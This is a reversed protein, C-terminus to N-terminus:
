WSRAAIQRKRKEAQEDSITEAQPAAPRLAVGGREIKSALSEIVQRLRVLETATPDEIVRGAIYTRLARKLVESREGQALSDWWQILDDDQDPHLRVSIFRDDTTM